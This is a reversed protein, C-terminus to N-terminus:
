DLKSSLFQSFLSYQSQSLFEFEIRFIFIKFRDEDSIIQSLKVWDKQTVIVGSLNQQAVIKLIQELDQYSYNHHDEFELVKDVTIGFNKVGQVFGLFSGVGAAVMFKKNEFFDIPMLTDGAQFLGVARHKGFLIKNSDFTYFIKNKIKELQEANVLDAHSVIILDARLYDFERLNGAPLCHGNFGLPYRADVVLINLVKKLQCNQYGDDLLIYEIKDFLQHIKLCSRLRDSGTATVIKLSQALMYPEDGCVEPSHYINAGDSVLLNQGTSHSAYGRSVIACKNKDLFNALFEVFVTKGTGGVTLNGVSIIKLGSVSKQGRYAKISQVIKFAFKYIVECFCLIIFLIKEFFILSKYDASRLWLDRVIKSIKNLM